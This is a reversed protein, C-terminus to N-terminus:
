ADAATAGAGGGGGGRRGRYRNNRGGGGGGGGRGRGRGGRRYANQLAIAGFTDTNLQREEAATLRGRRPADGASAGGGGLNDFFDDKVYKSLKAEENGAVAALVEEKKFSSLAEEFNFEKSTEVVSQATGSVGKRERMKLLHGGTGAQEAPANPKNADKERRSQQQPQSDDRPKNEQRGGGRNDHSRNETGTAKSGGSKPATNNNNRNNTSKKENNRAPAAPPAAAGTAPPPTPATSSEHVYLDKIEQGPFTVFPIVATSPPISKSKDTVRDETGFVQVDKLVISSETPNISFLTGDYRIDQHSILSIKCGILSDLDAM